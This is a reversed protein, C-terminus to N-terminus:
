ILGHKWPGTIAVTYGPSYINAFLWKGDPSFCAGAWEANHFSGNFGMEGELRTANRAFEFVSGSKSLGWLKQTEESYSDQCLVLGGRPSIALNDPYYLVSKDTSEYILELEEAKVHYAWVQGAAIDGGNTSTFFITDASIMCGELRAFQSAGNSLAQAFNGNAGQGNVTGQTPDEVEVWRVAFRQGQRVGTRLDPQNVASLAQLRGGRILNGPTTPIFRYFGCAPSLDETMFVQGSRAHVAAAEHQRQGMAILPEANSQTNRPVEFIFGHDRTLQHEGDQLKFRGARSVIEECSLWSGWPTVGGACNRLTGSLSADASVMQGSHTDFSLTTTGGDCAADYSADAAAFGGSATYSEHNRILTLVAGDRAVVGMGDHASPTRAGNNLLSGAWGFSRYSFGNPLELLPLGTNLDRVPSLSGYGTAIGNPAGAQALLRGLPSMALAGAGFAAGGLKLFQRRGINKAHDNM